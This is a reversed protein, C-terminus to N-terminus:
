KKQSTVQGNVDVFYIYRSKRHESSMRLSERRGDIVTLRVDRPILIIDDLQDLTIGDVHTNDHFYRMSMNYANKITSMAASDPGRVRYSIFGPLFIAAVLGFVILVLVCLTVLSKKAMQAATLHQIEVDPQIGIIMRDMADRRTITAPTLIVMGKEFEFRIKSGGMVDKVSKLQALELRVTKLLAKFIIHNNEIEVEYTRNLFPMWIIIVGGLLLVTLLVRDGLGAASSIHPGVLGAIGVTLIFRLIGDAIRTTRSILFRKPHSLDM